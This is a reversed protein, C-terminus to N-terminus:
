KACKFRFVRTRSRGKYVFIVCYILAPVWVLDIGRRSNSDHAGSMQIWGGNGQCLPPPPREEGPRKNEMYVWAHRSYFRHSSTEIFVSDKLVNKMKSKIKMQVYM